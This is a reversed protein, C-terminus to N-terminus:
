KDELYMRILELLLYPWLFSGLLVSILDEFDFNGDDDLHGLIMINFPIFAIYDIIYIIILLQKIFPTILKSNIINLITSQITNINDQIKTKIEKNIENLEIANINPAILLTIISLISIQIILKKKM